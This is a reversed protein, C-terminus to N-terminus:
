VTGIEEKKKSNINWVSGNFIGSGETKYKNGFYDEFEVILFIKGTKQVFDSILITYWHDPNNPIANSGINTKIGNIIYSNLYIPYSSINYILIAFEKSIIKGEHDTNNRTQSMLFIEVFNAVDLMRKNIDNQKIGIKYAFFSAAGALIAAFATVIVQWLSIIEGTTM